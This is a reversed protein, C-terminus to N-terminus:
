EYYWGLLIMMEDTSLFGFKVTQDTPNDYTAILRFGEGINLEIPPEFNLIPPHSWDDTWYVVEGDRPGGSLKVVFEAMKEHAHSFVQGVYIKGSVTFTKEITTVKKPPLSFTRNSMTFMEAEHQIDSKEITHINTFVEGIMLSDTRNVYHVNQDLGFRSPLRLGVGVPMKYDLRPWQTGGFFQHNRMTLLTPPQLSGESDRLERNVGFAPLDGQETDGKFSYLIFHHSGPRMEIEIRSVFVDEILKIDSYHFFEREFNPQVEFPGLHIQFGKEPPDLPSFPKPMYRTSDTLLKEDAVIGVEPAGAEIWARIFQLKGDTLFNEGPPMMQGYYPHDSLYHERDHSNIKEWLFSKRLAKLGGENSVLVLGDEKAALNKPSVGVMEGYSKGNTLVLGSQRSVASGDLHCNVCSPTLVEDQITQWTSSPNSGEGSCSVFLIIIPLLKVFSNM